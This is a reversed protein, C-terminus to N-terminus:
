LLVLLGEVREIVSSELEILKWSETIVEWFHQLGMLFLFILIPYISVTMFKGWSKRLDFIYVGM